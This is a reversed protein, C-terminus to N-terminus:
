DVAEDQDKKQVKQMLARRENYMIEFFNGTTRLADKQLIGKVFAENSASSVRVGKSVLEKVFEERMDDYGTCHILFHYENELLRKDCASCTRNELPTDKWQGTELHLPFIGTKLKSVLSRQGRPLLSEVIARPHGSEYIEIFMRLKAKDAADLLWKQRNLVLLRSKLADLDTLQEDGLDNEVNAYQLVHKIQDAWGNSKLSLDWKLITKPWQEDNTSKIRNALRAMEIWRLFKTDLWDFELGMAAVPTFAHVGLYFQKNRNSLVQPASQESFSWVAAGFNLTYPVYSEYLLQYSNIGTNKLQKFLNVVRGFSRTAAGTLADVCPKDHLHENFLIGLYKYNTTYRLKM